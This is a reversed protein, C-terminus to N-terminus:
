FQGHNLCTEAGLATIKQRLRTSSHESPRPVFIPEAGQTPTYTRQHEVSIFALDYDGSAYLATLETEGTYTVVRNVFKCAQLRVRRDAETEIPKQKRPNDVTPDINLAATLHNCRQRAWQLAFLHGPHLLDFVGAFIGYKFLTM